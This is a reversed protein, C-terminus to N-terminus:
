RLDLKFTLLVSNRIVMNYFGWFVVVGFFLFEQFNM